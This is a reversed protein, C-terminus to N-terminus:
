NDTTRQVNGAALMPGAAVLRKNPPDVTANFGELTRAGLLQLDGPEAFVVVDVTEFSPDAQLMAYGVERTILRGDATTFARAKGPEIAVNISELTARAIWTAESGTDVLVDPVSVSQMRSALHRVTVTTRFLGM